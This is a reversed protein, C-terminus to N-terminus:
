ELTLFQHLALAPPLLETEFVLQHAQVSADDVQRTLM